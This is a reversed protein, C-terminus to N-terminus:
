THNIFNLHLTFQHELGQGKLLTTLSELLCYAATHNNCIFHVLFKKIACKSCATCQLQQFFICCKDVATEMYWTCLYLVIFFIVNTFNGQTCAMFDCPSGLDAVGSIRLRLLLPPHTTLKIGQSTQTWHFLVQYGNFLCSCPGWFQEPSAGALFGVM